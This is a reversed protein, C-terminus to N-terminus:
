GWLALCESVSKEIHLIDEKKVDNNTVFRYIGGEPGNIKIGKKYMLSTFEKEDIEAINIEFFVMNLNVNDLNVHIGKIKSLKEALILANSHDEALRDVMEELAVIGAAALFGVQRMGGGLMKRNKRAKNIFEKKGALISGVPACLGKSLCFMVSDCYKTIEKVNVGLVVAANFVRAGDLHVPITHSKALAYINNMNELPVIIGLSNANELCILGTDPYHINDERIAKEVVAPAMIGKESKITHIFVGSLVAAAGVEHQVIHYSEDIIIENGRKTHTMIAIQNGMTGSPVFIAAEKGVLKAAIEELRRVTEDEGYVDDGVVANFMVQRMKETPQTVTDSRLDIFRM